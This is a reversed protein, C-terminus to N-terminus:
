MASESPMTESDTFDPDPAPASASPFSTPSHSSSPSRQVKSKRIGKLFSFLGFLKKKHKKQAIEVARYSSQVEETLITLTEMFQDQSAPPVEPAPPIGAYDENSSDDMPVSSHASFHFSQRHPAWQPPAQPPMDKYTQNYQRVRQHVRGVLRVALTGDESISRLFLAPPYSTSPFLRELSPYQRLIIKTLLRGFLRKHQLRVWFTFLFDALSIRLNRIVSYMVM